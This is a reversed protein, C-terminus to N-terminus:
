KIFIKKGLKKLWANLTSGGSIGYLKRAESRTLKGGELESIVKQKFALSYLKTIKQKSDMLNHGKQSLNIFINKVNQLGIEPCSV